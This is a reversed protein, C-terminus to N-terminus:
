AYWSEYVKITDGSCLRAYTFDAPKFYPASDDGHCNLRKLDGREQDKIFVSSSVPPLLEKTLAMVRDEAMPGTARSEIIQPHVERVRVSCKGVLEVVQFFDNNTQDYGWCAHFIDGVKVGFKNVTEAQKSDQKAKAEVPKEGDIAARVTAEDTYGYWVKKVSHWRFRLSKLADRIEQAPKGNFAIEISNFQPNHAITYTTTM